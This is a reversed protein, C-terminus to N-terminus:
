DKESQQQHFQWFHLTPPPTVPQHVADMVRKEMAEYAKIAVDLAVDGGSVSDLQDIDLERFESTFESM